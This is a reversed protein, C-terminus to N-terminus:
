RDGERNNLTRGWHWGPDGYPFLLVYHLPFYSAHNPNILTFPNDRDEGNMRSALVIDRFGASGYEEPLIMSVEDATPLNERRLDAGREVVLRLQPNLILRFNSEAESIEVFRERATLYIRILPNSEQLMLTLSAVIDADLERANRSRTEAAYTPDYLYIQSYLADRGDGPVLPGQRHYFAGHIQFMQFTTSGIDMMRRDMNFKVSTFAFQGNWRRLVKRFAKSQTNTGNMLSHLPEPLQRMRELRADGRKCCSQYSAEGGQPKKASPESAWHLAQCGTCSVNMRGLDHSKWCARREIFALPLRIPQERRRVGRAERVPIDERAGAVM